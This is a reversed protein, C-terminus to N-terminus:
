IEQLFPKFVLIEHEQKKKQKIGGAWGRGGGGRNPQFTRSDSLGSREQCLMPWLFVFVQMWLAEHISCLHPLHQFDSIKLTFQLNKDTIHTFHM